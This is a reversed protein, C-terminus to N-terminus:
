VPPALRAAVMQGWSHRVAACCAVLCGWTPATPRLAGVVAEHPHTATEDNTQTVGRPNHERRHQADTCREDGTIEPHVWNDSEYTPQDGHEVWCLHLYALTDHAECRTGAWRM